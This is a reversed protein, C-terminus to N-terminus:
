DWLVNVPEIARESLFQRRRRWAEPAEDPRTLGAGLANLVRTIAEPSAHVLKGSVEYYSTQVGYLDALRNLEEVLFGKWWSCLASSKRSRGKNAETLRISGHRNRKRKPAIIDSPCTTGTRWM